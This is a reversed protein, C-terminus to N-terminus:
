RIGRPYRGTNLSEEPLPVPSGVRVRDLVLSDPISDNLLNLGGLRGVVCILYVIEFLSVVSLQVGFNISETTEVLVRGKERAGGV